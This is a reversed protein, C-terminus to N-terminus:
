EVEGGLIEVRSFTEVKFFTESLLRVYKGQKTSQDDEQSLLVMEGWLKNEFIFAAQEWSSLEASSRELINVLNPPLSSKIDDITVISSMNEKGPMIDSKCIDVVRHIIGCNNCQAYKPIVSDEVIESFVVFQHAPPNPQNAFMRLFCRCKVLHRQGRKM